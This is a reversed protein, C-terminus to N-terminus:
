PLRKETLRASVMDAATRLAQAHRAVDHKRFRPSPIALTLAAVPVDTPDCVDVGVGCVGDVTEDMSVGYGVKRIGALVRKLASLQTIRANPWPPLGDQYIREIDEDDAAALLAKGGASCHAPMLDGIRVAVRLMDDSEVGDVFQINVGKLIMLQATEHQSGNLWELAPRAARRLDSVSVAPAGPPALEPGARYLRDGGRVAFGRDCLANLLRHATSPVVGLTAAAATVSTSETDRLLVLLQLARDV